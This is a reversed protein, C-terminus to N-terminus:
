VSIEYASDYVSKKKEDDKRQKFRQDKDKTQVIESMELAKVFSMPRLSGDGRGDVVNNEFVPENVFRNQNPMTRSAGTQYSVNGQERYLQDHSRRTRQDPYQGRTNYSNVSASNDRFREESSSRVPYGNNLKQHPYSGGQNSRPPIIHSYPVRAGAPPRSHSAKARDVDASNVIPRNGPVSPSGTSSDEPTALPPHDPHRLNFPKARPSRDYLHRPRSVQPSPQRQLSAGVPTPQSTDFLNTYSGSNQKEKPPPIESDQSLSSMDDVQDEYDEVLSLRM